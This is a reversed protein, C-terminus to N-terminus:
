LKTKESIIPDHFTQSAKTNGLILEVYEKEPIIFYFEGCLYHATRYKRPTKGRNSWRIDELKGSIYSTVVAGALFVTVLIYPMFDESM